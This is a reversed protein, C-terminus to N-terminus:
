VEDRRNAGLIEPEDKAFLRIQRIEGSGTLDIRPQFEYARNFYNGSIEHEVDSPSHLRIMRSQERYTHPGACDYGCFTILTGSQVVGNDQKSVYHTLTLTTASDVSVITATFGGITLDTFDASMGDTSAVNIQIVGPAVPLTFNGVTTTTRSICCDEMKACAKFSDWDTWCPHQDSQYKVTGTLDGLINNLIIRATELRKFQDSNGFNYSPLEFGWNIPTRNGDFCTDTTLEWLEIEDNCSLTYAFCREVSGVMGKLIKLIRLDKWVGEWVPATKNSMTSILNFDMVALGLHYIGHGASPVPAVTTLLRNDFLVSSGHELLSETDASLVDWIEASMPTNGWTQFQRQAMIYSRIGDISRYWVDTNVLVMTDQGTPGLLPSNTQMPNTMDKWVTRDFPLSVTFVNYPTGVMLPGQGLQTDCMAVAHMATIPGDSAPAGFVRAQYDGGENLFDNETFRLVADRYGNAQTGSPGFLLDGIRYTHRDPLAVILRGAAYSMVNGVPIEKKAPDSRRSGSGNFIVPWSQSDQYVWYNGLQVSWGIPLGPDNVDLTLDSHQPTIEQVSLTNIDV